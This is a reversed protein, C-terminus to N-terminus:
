TLLRSHPHLIIQLLEPSAQPQGAPVGCQQLHLAFNESEVRAPIAKPHCSVSGAAAKLLMSSFDWPVASCVQRRAEQHEASGRLLRRAGVPDM